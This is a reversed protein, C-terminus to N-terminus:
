NMKAGGITIEGISAEIMSTSQSQDNMFEVIPSCGADIRMQKTGQISGCANIAQKFGSVSTAM